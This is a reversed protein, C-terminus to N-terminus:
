IWCYTTSKGNGNCPWVFKLEGFQELKDEKWSPKDLISAEVASTSRTKYRVGWCFTSPEMGPNSPRVNIIMFIRFKQNKWINKKEWKLDQIPLVVALAEFEQSDFVKRQNFCIM